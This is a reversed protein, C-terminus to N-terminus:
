LLWFSKSIHGIRAFSTQPPDDSNALNAYWIYICLKLISSARHCASLWALSDQCGEPNQCCYFLSIIQPDSCLGYRRLHDTAHLHVKYYLYLKEHGNVIFDLAM